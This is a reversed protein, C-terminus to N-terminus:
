KRIVRPKEEKLEIVSRLVKDIKERAQKWTCNTQKRYVEEIKGLPISSMAIIKDRSAVKGLTLLAIARQSDTIEREISPKSLFYNDLAGAAIRKRAEDMLPDSIMNAFARALLLKEIQDDGIESLKQELYVERSRKSLTKEPQLALTPLPMMKAQFEPCILKAKCYRCQEEGAVLPADEKGAADLIEKIQERSAEIDDPSYEALTIREDYPLRPQTISTFVRKPTARCYKDCVLVAYVRLQINLEAREVTKYGFKSDNVWVPSENVPFVAVFDPTGSILDNAITTEHIPEVPAAGVVKTLRESLTVTLSDNRELLDRQNPPLISRDYEPHADYDHLLQGERSQESDDEPLGLEMRQSGPCLQRRRLNSASTVPRNM